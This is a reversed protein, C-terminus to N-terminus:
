SQKENKNLQKNQNQKQKQKNKNEKQTKIQKKIQIHPPPPYMHTVTFVYLDHSLKYLLNVGEKMHMEPTLTLDNSNSASSKVRQAM